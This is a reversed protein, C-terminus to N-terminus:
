WIARWWLRQHLVATTIAATSVPSVKSRNHRLHVGNYWGVFANSGYVNPLDEGHVGLRNDHPAGYALVVADYIELLEPISVDRGVEVNGLYRVRQHSLTREYAKSVRKTKQHDPAVGGRIIVFGDRRFRAILESDDGDSGSRASRAPFVRM